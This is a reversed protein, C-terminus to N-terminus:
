VGEKGTRSESRDSDILMQGLRPIDILVCMHGKVVGAAWRQKVTGTKPHVRWRVDAPSLRIPQNVKTVALGWSLGAISVVYKANRVFEQDYKEPMIFLSTNVVKYQQGTLSQLGMFWAAQGFIPTLEESLPHIHGLTVLPVAIKFGDVELLLADFDSQAWPPRHNELWKLQTPDVFEKQRISKQQINDQAENTDDVRVEDVSVEDVSAEEVSAEEVSVDDSIQDTRIEIPGSDHVVDVDEGSSSPEPESAVCAAFTNLFEDTLLTPRALERAESVQQSGENKGLPLSAVVKDAKGSLIENSLKTHSPNEDIRFDETLLDSFYRHLAKEPPTHLVSM